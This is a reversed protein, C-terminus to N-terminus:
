MQQVDARGHSRELLLQPAKDSEKMQATNEKLMGQKCLLEFHYKQERKPLLLVARVDEHHKHRALIHRRLHSQMRDCYLCPRCPRKYKKSKRTDDMDVVDDLELEHDNVLGGKVAEERTLFNGTLHDLYMTPEIGSVLPTPQVIDPLM